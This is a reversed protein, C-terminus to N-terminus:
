RRQGKDDKKKPKNKQIQGVIHVITIFVQGYSEDLLRKEGNKFYHDINFGPKSERMQAEKWYLWEMSELHFLHVM